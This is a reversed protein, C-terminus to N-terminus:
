PSRAHFYKPTPYPPAATHLTTAPVPPKSIALAYHQKRRVLQRKSQCSASQEGPRHRKREIWSKRSLFHPVKQRIAARPEHNHPASCCASASCIALSGVCCRTDYQIREAEIAPLFIRSGVGLLSSAHKISYLEPVVPASPHPQM